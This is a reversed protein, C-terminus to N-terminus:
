GRPRARPGPRSGHDAHRHGHLHLRAGEGRRRDDPEHRAVRGRRDSRFTLADASVSVDITKGLVMVQKPGALGGLATNMMPGMFQEAAVSIISGIASNMDMMDIIEGPVGSADLNFNTLAVNPSQLTTTFGSTGNPTVLLTGSVVVKDATVEISESGNICAVAFNVHAPVDLGDIELSFALGGQVPTLGIIANTFSIGDVFAEDYLCDPGNEDGSHQMPQLPALLPNFDTQAILTSAASSIKGFANTSIAATIANDINSGVARLEGAQVSRTDTAVGGKVDTAVTHLLSEGAQIQVTATFAGNTGVTAPVDNVTVTQVADGEPNPAVTGTVTISGAGSQVLSRAPSTVTLVPPEPLAAPGSNDCGVLALLSLGSALSILNRM